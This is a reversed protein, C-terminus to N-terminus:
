TPRSSGRRTSARRASRAWVDDSLVEADIENEWLVELEQGQADDDLCSLRVLTQDGPNPPPVVEEVLYQRSRVRVVQGPEPAAASM